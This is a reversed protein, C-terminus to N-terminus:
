SDGWNLEYRLDQMFGNGQLSQENMKSNKMMNEQQLQELSPRETLTCM